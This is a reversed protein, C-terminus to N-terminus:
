GSGLASGSGKPGTSTVTPPPDATPSPREADPSRVIDAASTAEPEPESSASPNEDEEDMVDEQTWPKVEIKGNVVKMCGQLKPRASPVYWLFVHKELHAITYEADPVDQMYRRAYDLLNPEDTAAIAVGSSNSILDKVTTSSGQSVVVQGIGAERGLKVIAALADSGYARGQSSMYFDADDLALGIDSGGEDYPTHGELWIRGFAAEQQDRDTISVPIHKAHILHSLTPKTPPAVSRINAIPWRLVDRIFHGALTTKGSGSPGFFLFRGIMVGQPSPSADLLV